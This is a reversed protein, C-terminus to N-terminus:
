NCSNKIVRTKMNVRSTNMRSIKRQTRLSANTVPTRSSIKEMSKNKRHKFHLEMIIKIDANFVRSKTQYM